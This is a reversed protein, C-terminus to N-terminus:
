KTGWRWWLAVVLVIFIVAAVPGPIEDVPPRVAAVAALAATM